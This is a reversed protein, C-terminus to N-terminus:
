SLGEEYEAAIEEESRAYNYVKFSDLTGHVGEDALYLSRGLYGICDTPDTVGDELIRTISYDTEASGTLVGDIYAKVTGNDFTMVYTHEQGLKAEGLPSVRVEQSNDMVGAIIHQDAASPNLFFYNKVNPWNNEVTGLTWLWHNAGKTPLFDAEFTFTESGEELIEAPLKVYQSKDGEFVLSNKRNEETFDEGTIGVLPADNGNGSIDLLVGEQYSMDYAATLGEEQGESLGAPETEESFENLNEKSELDEPFKDELLLQQEEQQLEPETEELLGNEESLSAAGAPVGNSFIMVGALFWALIRKKM